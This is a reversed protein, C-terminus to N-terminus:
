KDTIDPGSNTAIIDQNLTKIEESDFYESVMLSLIKRDEDYGFGCVEIGREKFFAYEYDPSLEGNEILEENIIEFFAQPRILERSESESLVEQSLNQYFEDKEIVKDM